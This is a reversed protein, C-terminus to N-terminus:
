RRDARARRRGAAPRQRVIGSTSPRGSAGNRIPRVEPVVDTGLAKVLDRREQCTDKSADM